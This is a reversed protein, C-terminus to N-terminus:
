SAYFSFTMGSGTNHPAFGASYNPYFVRLKDINVVDLFMEEGHYLTYAYNGATAGYLAVDAESIVCMFENSSASAGTSVRSAKIKIGTSCTFGSGGNYDKLNKSTYGVYDTRGLFDTQQKTSIVSVALSKQTSRNVGTPDSSSLVADKVSSVSNGINDRILTYISYQDPYDSAGVSVEGSFLAKKVATLFATDNKLDAISNNINTTQSTFNALEIPLLGGSFGKVTVPDGSTSGTVWVGATAYTTGRIPLAGIDSATIGFTSGLTVSASVTFTIGSNVLSVNLAGACWGAGTVGGIQILNNNPALATIYTPVTARPTAANDNAGQGVVTVTDALYSLDRIDLNSATVTVGDLGVGSKINVNLANNESYLAEASAGTFGFLGVSVTSATGGGYVTVTDSAATLGRIVVTGFTVGLATAGSVGYVGIDISSAVSVPLSGSVTIGVPYAGSLGQIAIYDSDGTGGGGVTGGYLTRIDLDTAAIDITTFTVGVLTAGSVGTIELPSGAQGVVATRLAYYAGTNYDYREWSGCLGVPLPTDSNINTVNDGTGYVIKVLQHHTNNVYDSAITYTIGDTSILYNDSTAGM